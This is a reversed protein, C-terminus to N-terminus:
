DFRNWMARRVQTAVYSGIEEMSIINDLSIRDAGLSANYDSIVQLTTDRSIPETTVIESLPM